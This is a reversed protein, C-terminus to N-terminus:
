LYHPTSYKASIVDKNKTRKGTPRQASCICPFINTNTKKDMLIKMLGNEIEIGILHMVNNNLKEVITHIGM